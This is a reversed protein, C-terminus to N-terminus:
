IIQGWLSIKQQNKNANLEFVGIGEHSSKIVKIKKGDVLITYQFDPKLNNITYIVKTQGSTSSQNWIHQNSNWDMIDLSLSKGKETRAKLAYQDKKANFFNLEDEKGYFGFDIKSGIKFQKNSVTYLNKDLGITLKEGRFNYLLQTGALKDTIHPNLYLRNYLPNIGYIAQYLGVVALSNGSLIDDGLGDQKMRGYRQFALGDKSHRDLVNEVYKLALEPNYDAYAEVAVSGWSLFIDGNEYSPFPFQSGKAEGPQYSFMCCPWFFLKEKQMQTEIHDLIAKSKIKDDCIGYAIAMFNVPTVLNNGHTSNDKDRWYIYCQKEEDWFGGQSTSKNFSEKLQAAYDSYYAAKQENGLQKEIDSWLVLAHYLKANVLANEFSAWVIDLWDSGRKETESNTMMEVLHNGNSDRKLIYDLAKECASQQGAVWAKDGCQDYLEAVNTVFDPNSDMLYGWQAEYFGEPNVTGRMADSNEYAWRAIVRGDPQIANDRYFDLCQKYGNLYHEDNIAIGLQAIYQEHLCIPGYPTHWSNGGFHKADIVGIRAITNLVSTVREGDIGVFKGRNYEKQYNFPSLTITQSVKGKPIEFGSWVDTKGRTFRRRHTDEDYRSIMEKDSVTIDYVLKDENSRYYSSAVQKGPSAVSVKLGNGTKSNWFASYNSHVGYTFLKERFLYFWALGGSELFAGEWTNISNFNFSPFSVQDATFTRPYTREINFVIDDPTITFEWNENIKIKDDGYNIGNVKVTHNTVEVEPFSDLNLSSYTKNLAKIQTFIGSSGEIVKEGNIELCSINCKQNYDITIKIKSNGFVIVKNKTDNKTVLQQAEGLNPFQFVLFAILSILITSKM